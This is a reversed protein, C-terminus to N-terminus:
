AVEVETNDTKAVIEEQKRLANARRPQIALTSEEQRKLRVVTYDGTMSVTAHGAIKGAEIASAGEEQRMTINARRLSHLGFDPFDCGACKAAHKLAKRVGSDWMRKIRDEDQFFIWDEPHVINKEKIWTV